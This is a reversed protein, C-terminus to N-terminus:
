NSHEITSILRQKVLSIIRKNFEAELPLYIGYEEVTMLGIVMGRLVLKFRHDTKFLASIQEQKRILSLEPFNIRKIKLHNIFFSVILDHQLKIIPRLTLNQFVEAASAHDVSDIGSIIPRINLKNNRM